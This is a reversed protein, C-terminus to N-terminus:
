NSSININGGASMNNGQVIQWGHVAGPYPLNQLPFSRGTETPLQRYTGAPPRDHNNGLTSAWLELQASVHQYGADDRRGFKTMDQHNAHIGESTYGPIIASHQPVILRGLTGHSLEEYFCHLLPVNAGRSRHQHLMEHFEQQLAALSESSRRLVEVIGRNTPRVLSTLNTLISAWDAISSGAHPTGMFVVGVTSELLASKWIEQAGRCILLAQETVLGGLSHAVFIAPREICKDLARKRGLQQALDRGHDRVTSSSTVAFMRVVDADYGFTFIRADPLTAPLFDRPWFSQSESHTWTKIRDGTLGHVFVIDLNAEHPERLVKLGYERRPPDGSTPSPVTQDTPGRSPPSPNARLVRKLWAM